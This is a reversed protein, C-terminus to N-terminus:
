EPTLAESEERVVRDQLTQTKSHAVSFVANIKDQLDRGKICRETQEQTLGTDIQPKKPIYKDGSVIPKELIADITAIVDRNMRLYISLAKSDSYSTLRSIMNVNEIDAATIPDDEM